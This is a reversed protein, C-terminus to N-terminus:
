EEESSLPKLVRVPRLIAKPQGILDDASVDSEDIDWEGEPVYEEISDLKYPRSPKKRPLLAEGAELRSIRTLKREIELMRDAMDVLEKPEAGDINASIHEMEEHLSFLEDQHRRLRSELRDLFGESMMDLNPIEARPAELETPLGSSEIRERADDLASKERGLHREILSDVADRSNDPILNPPQYDDVQSELVSVLDINPQQERPLVHDLVERVIKQGTAESDWTILGDDDRMPLEQGALISEIDTIGFPEAGAEIALAVAEFGAAASSWDGAAASAIVRLQEDSLSIGRRLVRNRLYLVLSLEDPQSIEVPVAPGLAGKLIGSFSPKELSTIVVQVGLNLCWDIMLGLNDQEVPGTVMHLDDVLLASCGQVAEAWDEPLMKPFSIGSIIRVETDPMQNYFSNGLAWLLHSKGVGDEGIIILPNTRGAPHIIVERAATSALRNEPGAQWNDWSFNENPIFLSPWAPRHLALEEAVPQLPSSTATPTQGTLSAHQQVAASNPRAHGRQQSLIERWVPTAGDSEVVSDASEGLSWTPINLSIPEGASDRDVMPAEAEVGQRMRQIREAAITGFDGTREKVAAATTRQFPGDYLNETPPMHRQRIYGGLTPSVKDGEGESLAREAESESLLRRSKELQQQLITRRGMVTM